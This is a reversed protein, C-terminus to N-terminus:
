EFGTFFVGSFSEFLYSREQVRSVRTKFDRKRPMERCIGVMGKKFVNGPVQRPLLMEGPPVITAVEGESRFGGCRRFAAVILLGSVPM